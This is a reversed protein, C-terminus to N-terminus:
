RYRPFGGTASPSQGGLYNSSAGPGYKQDFDAAAHPNAKLYAVASPPPPLTPAGTSPGSIPPARFMGFAGTSPDVGFHPPNALSDVRQAYLAQGQPSSPDIGAATMYRSFEDPAKDAQEITHRTQWDTNEDQRHRNYIQDGRELANQEKMAPGYIPDMHGMQLLADGIAGAISRGAGGQGFFHTPAPAVPPMAVNYNGLGLSPSTPFYPNPKAGIMAM